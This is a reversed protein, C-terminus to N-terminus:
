LKRKREWNDNFNRKWKSLVTPVSTPVHQKWPIVQRTKYPISGFTARLGCNTILILCQYEGPFVQVCSIVWEPCDTGCQIQSNSIFIVEPFLTWKLYWLLVRCFSLCLTTELCFYCREEAPCFFWTVTPFAAGEDSRRIENFSPEHWLCTNVAQLRAHTIASTRFSVLYPESCEKWPWLACPQLDAAKASDKGAKKCTRGRGIEWSSVM